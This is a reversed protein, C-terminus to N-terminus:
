RGRIERGLATLLEFGALRPVYRTDCLPRAKAAETLRELVTRASFRAVPGLDFGLGSFPLSALRLDM